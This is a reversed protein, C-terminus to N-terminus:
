KFFISSMSLMQHLLSWCTQVDLIPMLAQQEKEVGKDKLTQIVQSLWSQKRKPSSRISHIIKQCVM